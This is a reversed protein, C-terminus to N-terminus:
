PRGGTGALHEGVAQYFALSRHAVTDGM